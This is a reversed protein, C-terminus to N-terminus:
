RWCGVVTVSLADLTCTFLVIKKQTQMNEFFPRLFMMLKESAKGVAYYDERGPSVYCM